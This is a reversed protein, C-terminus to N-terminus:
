RNPEAKAQSKEQKLVYKRDEDSLRMIGITTESGDPRRLTVLRKGSIHEMKVFKAAAEFETGDKRVWKRMEAKAALAESDAARPAAPGKGGDDKKVAKPSPTNMSAALQKTAHPVLEAKM